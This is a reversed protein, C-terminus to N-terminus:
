NWSMWHIQTPTISVGAASPTAGVTLGTAASVVDITQVANGYLATIVGTSAAGATTGVLLQFLGYITAATGGTRITIDGLLYWLAGAITSGLAVSPGTGLGTGVATGWNVSPIITQGAGTSTITGTAAIRYAEPAMISNPAIPTYTAASWWAVNAVGGTVAGLNQAPPYALLGGYTGEVNSPERSQVIRGNILKWDKRGQRKLWLIEEDRLALDDSTFSGPESEWVPPSSFSSRRWM